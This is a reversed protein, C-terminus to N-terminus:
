PRDGALRRLGALYGEAGLGAIQAICVPAIVSHHRFSERAHVNSLHVEVARIGTGVIVDRLGHAYHSLIGPNILMGMSVPAMKTIFEVLGSESNSQFCEATCGLRAAENVIMENLESLTQRGYIEPERTGLLDLNPGHVVLIGSM